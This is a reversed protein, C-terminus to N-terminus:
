QPFGQAKWAEFTAIQCDSLRQGPPMLQANGTPLNIRNLVTGNETALKLNEYGVLNLGASPFNGSHCSTCANQVLPQIHDKYTITETDCASPNNTTEKNDYTCAAAGLLVLLPLFANLKRM